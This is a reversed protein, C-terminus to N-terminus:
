VGRGRRGERRHRVRGQEFYHALEMINPFPIAVEEDMDGEAADEKAQLFVRM